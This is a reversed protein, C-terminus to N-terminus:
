PGSLNPSIRRGARDGADHKRNKTGSYELWFFRFRNKQGPLLFSFVFARRHFGDNQRILFATDAFGGEGGMDRDGGLPGTVASAHQDVGVRLRRQRSPPVPPFRLSGCERRDAELLKGALQLRQALCAIGVGEDVGGRRNGFGDAGHDGLGIENQNRDAGAGM